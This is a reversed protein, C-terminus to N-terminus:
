YAPGSTDILTMEGKGDVLSFFTRRLQPDHLDFQAIHHYGPARTASWLRAPFEETNIEVILGALDLNYCSTLLKLDSSPYSDKFKINYSPKFYWILGAEAISIEEKKNLPNDLVNQIHIADGLDNIEADKTIGDMSIMATAPEYEFMFLLVEDDPSGASVEALIKQLTQHSKLRDFATRTGDGFAQGVYLVEFDNLTEGDTKSRMSILSAPWHREPTGDNSYGVLERHPYPSVQVDIDPDVRIPFQFAHEHLVGGIRRRFVGSSVPTEYRFSEPDFSLRPRRCIAYIHCLKLVEAVDDPIGKGSMLEEPALAIANKTHLGLTVESFYRRPPLTM